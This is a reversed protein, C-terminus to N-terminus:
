KADLNPQLPIIGALTKPAAPSACVWMFIKKKIISFLM